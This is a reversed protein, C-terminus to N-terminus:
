RHSRMCEICLISEMTQTQPSTFCFLVFLVTILHSIPILYYQTGKEEPHVSNAMVVPTFKTTCFKNTQYIICRRSPCSPSLTITTWRCIRDLFSRDILRPMSPYYESMWVQINPLHILGSFSTLNNNDLRVTHLNSFLEPPNLDVVRHFILFM